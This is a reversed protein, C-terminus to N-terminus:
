RCGIPGIVRMVLDLRQSGALDIFEVDLDPGGTDNNRGAIPQCQRHTTPVVFIGAWGRTKGIDAIRHATAPREQVIVLTIARRRNETALHRQMGARLM